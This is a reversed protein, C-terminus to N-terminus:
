MKMKIAKNNLSGNTNLIAIIAKMHTQQDRLLEEETMRMHGLARNIKASKLLERLKM